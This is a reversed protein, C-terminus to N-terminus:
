WGNNLCKNKKPINYSNLSIIVEDGQLAATVTDWNVRCQGYKVTVTHGVSFEAKIEVDEEPMIFSCNNKSTPQSLEVNGKTVVWQKFVNDMPINTDNIFGINVQQGAVVGDTIEDYSEDYAKGNQINVNFKQGISIDSTLVANENQSNQSSDEENVEIAPKEDENNSEEILNEEDSVDEQNIDVNAMVNAISMYVVIFCSFLRILIKNMQKM